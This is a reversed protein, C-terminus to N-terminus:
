GRICWRRDHIPAPLGASQEVIHAKHIGVV